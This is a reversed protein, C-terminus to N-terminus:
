SKAKLRREEAALYDAIVIDRAKTGSARSLRYDRVAKHIDSFMEDAATTADIAEQVHPPKVADNMGLLRRLWRNM